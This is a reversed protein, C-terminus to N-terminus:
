SNGEGSSRRWGTRWMLWDVLGPALAHGVLVLRLMAPLVVRRRDREVGRVLADAVQEPTLTPVMRTIRPLREESGPNREFYSSAVKGPVMELVAVGSGRLDARLAATFGRVAGRAATYATAGPWPLWPAPSNLIVIYGQRRALMAPLFARTVYFGSLYPAAIMAEAEKPETEEIHLFRGAGANNVLIAAVGLDTVIQKAAAEVAAPDTVDVKYARAVRGTAVIEAAITEVDPSRALLAVRGGARAMARATAAGIGRSAGTVVVTHGEIRM